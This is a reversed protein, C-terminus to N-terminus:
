NGYIYIYINPRNTLSSWIRLIQIKELNVWNEFLAIKAYIIVIPEKSQNECSPKRTKSILISNSLICVRYKQFNM